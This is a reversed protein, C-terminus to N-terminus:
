NDFRVIKNLDDKILTYIEDISNRGLKRAEDASITNTIKYVCCICPIEDTLKM